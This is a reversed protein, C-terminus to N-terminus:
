AHGDGEVLLGSLTRLQAAPAPGLDVHQSEKLLFEYQSILNQKLDELSDPITDGYGYIDADYFSAVYDDVDRQEVTVLLPHSVRWASTGLDNLAVTHIRFASQLRIDLNQVLTALKEITISETEM